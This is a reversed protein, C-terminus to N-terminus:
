SICCVNMATADMARIAIAVFVQSHDAEGCPSEAHAGVTPILGEGGKREAGHGQGCAAGLRLGFGERDEGGSGQALGERLQRAAELLVVWAHRHLRLKAAAHFHDFLNRLQVHRGVHHGHGVVRDNRLVHVGLLAM